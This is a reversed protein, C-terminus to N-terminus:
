FMLFECFFPYCKSGLKLQDAHLWLAPLLRTTTCCSSATTPTTSCTTALDGRAGQRRRRRQVGLFFQAFSSICRDFLGVNQVADKKLRDAIEELVVFLVWLCGFTSLFLTTKQGTESSFSLLCLLSGSFSFISSVVGLVMSGKSHIQFLHETSSM